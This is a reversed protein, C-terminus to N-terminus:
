EPAVHSYAARLKYPGIENDLVELAHELTFEHRPKVMFYSEPFYLGPNFCDGNLGVIKGGNVIPGVRVLLGNQSNVYNLNNMTWFHIKRDDECAKQSSCCYGGIGVMGKHFRQTTWRVKKAAASVQAFEKKKEDTWEKRLDDPDTYKFGLYEKKGGMDWFVWLGKYANDIYM